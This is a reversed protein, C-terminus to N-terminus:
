ESPPLLMAQRYTLLFHVTANAHAPRAVRQAKDLKRDKKYAVSYIIM